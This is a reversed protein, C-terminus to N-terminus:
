PVVNFEIISILAPSGTSQQNSSYTFQGCFNSELWIPFNAYQSINTQSNYTVLPIAASGSLSGYYASTSPLLRIYGSWTLEATEIKWVKNPPVCFMITDVYNNVTYINAIFQYNIVRNFQLNGQSFFGFAIFFFLSTIVIKM